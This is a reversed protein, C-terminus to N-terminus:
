GVGGGLRAFLGFRGCPGDSRHSFFPTGPGTDLGALHVQSEPVGAALLQRTNARWLDFTWAGTGDPRVVEDLWEPYAAAVAAVVDDRVQYRDPAISPGVGAVLDASDAGLRVMARVAASTVGRVTGPWGAHVVGLVRHVPDVLVLPVCDAVLMALVVGPETTVLADTGPVADDVSRAGRGRDDATVVHVQARHVQHAFVLDDLGCGLARGVVERNAVVAAPDDGVHLGLNLSAYRGVSSGGARTTVVAEVPLADLAPWALVPLGGPSRAEVASPRSASM